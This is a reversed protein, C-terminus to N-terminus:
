WRNSPLVDCVCEKRKLLPLTLVCSGEKTGNLETKSLSDTTTTVYLCNRRGLLANGSESLTKKIILSRPWQEVPM